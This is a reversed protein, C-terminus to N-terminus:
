IIKFHKDSYYGYKTGIVVGRALFVMFPIFYYTWEFKPMQDPVAFYFSFSLTLMINLFYTFPLPCALGGIFNMNHLMNVNCKEIMFILPMGIFFPIVM